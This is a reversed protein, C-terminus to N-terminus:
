DHHGLKKLADGAAEQEALSKRRGTGRGVVTGSILAEAQFRHPHHEGETELVRYSPLGEGKGQALEQLLGKPNKLTGREGAVALENELTELIFDHATEYGQDLFLAGVVAEFAAALNSSRQRGGSAEEGRGMSLSAGLGLSDAVRALTETRVLASRIATLQGEPLDPFRAYVEEAVALGVLADGLFELRENSELSAQPHENVYSGHTLALQLLAEDKFSTSLRDLATNTPGL